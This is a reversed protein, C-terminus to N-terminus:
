PPSSTWYLGSNIRSGGCLRTIQGQEWRSPAYTCIETGLNGDQSECRRLGWHRHWKLGAEGRPPLGAELEAMQTTSTMGPQTERGGL